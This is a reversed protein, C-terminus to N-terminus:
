RNRFCITSSSTDRLSVTAVSSAFASAWPCRSDTGTFNNTWSPTVFKRFAVDQFNGCRIVIGAPLQKAVPRHSDCDAIKRRRHHPSPWAVASFRGWRVVHSAHRVVVSFFSTLIYSTLFLSFRSGRFVISLRRLRKNAPGQAPLKAWAPPQCLNWNASEREPCQVQVTVAAFSRAPSERIVTKRMSGLSHSNAAIPTLWVPSDRVCRRSHLSFCLSTAAM